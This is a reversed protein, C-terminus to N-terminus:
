NETNEDLIMRETYDDWGNPGGCWNRYKEPIQHKKGQRAQELYYDAKPSTILCKTGQEPYAIEQLFEPNPQTAV